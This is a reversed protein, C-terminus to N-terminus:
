LRGGRKSGRKSSAAGGSSVRWQTTVKALMKQVKSVSSPFQGSARLARRNDQRPAAELLNEDVRRAGESLDDNVHRAVVQLNDSLPLSHSISTTAQALLTPLLCCPWWLMRLGVM